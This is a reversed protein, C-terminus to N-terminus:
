PVVAKRWFRIQVKAASDWVRDHEWKLAKMCAAVRMEDARQWEAKRKGLCEDLVSATTIYGIRPQELWVRIPDEWPDPQRREEQQERFDAKAETESPWWAKGEHYAAVAEAWLQDRDREIGTLDIRTCRVPWFRRAGTEDQLYKDKNTTGAFVNQRPVDIVRRGWPPRFKDSSRSLFAKVRSVEARSLADLEALEVILRGQLQMAADKGGIDGLEDTFWAESALLKLATSKGLGQEGELIVAHDAKAGPRYVRAVASILWWMGVAASYDGDPAGLLAPLWKSLRPTGDHELAAFYDKVPHFAFKAAVVKIAEAVVAPQVRLQWHTALWAAARTDDADSWADGVLASRAPAYHSDWPPAKTFSAEAASFENRAVVGRWPEDNALITVVNASCGVIGGQKNYLLRERWKPDAAKRRKADEIPTVSM